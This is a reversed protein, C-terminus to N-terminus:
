ATNNNTNIYVNSWAGDKKGNLVSGGTYSLRYVSGDGTVPVTYDSSQEPKYEATYSKDAGATGNQQAKMMGQAVQKLPNDDKMQSMQLNLIANGIANGPKGGNDKMMDQLKSLAQSINSDKGGGQMKGTISQFPNSGGDGGTTKQPQAMMDDLSNGPSSGKANVPLTDTEATDQVAPQQAINTTSNTKNGTTKAANSNCAVPLLIIASLMSYYAINKMFNKLFLHHKFNLLRLATLLFYDIFMRQYDDFLRFFFIGPKFQVSFCYFFSPFYHTRRGRFIQYKVSGFM